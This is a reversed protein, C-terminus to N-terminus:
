ADAPSPDASATEYAVSAFSVCCTRTPNVAQDYRLLRGNVPGIAHLMTYTAALGCVRWRNEVRAATDFWGAPDQRAAHELMAEDFTRIQDLTADDVPSPDGFEPGVHCLDIGGIYAVKKGSAAEASRLAEVMRAVEPDDIPEIGRTMLDHFSGVLIPVISIDRRKALLHQLFVVQFEVSHETRHALEDEFLHHGASDALHGVFNRDTKALGLPTQFDKRTLAFRNKCYQHAVGLVVFVEADSREVLERYAWTYVPGGRGFDIHPCLIGRLTAPRTPVPKSPPGSGNPHAFYRDLEATLAAKSSSYSRGAMAAARVDLRAHSERFSAFTPGDLVMARDLQRVLSELDAMSVVQGTERRVRIQVEDLTTRGDFYRVVYQFADLPLLFSGSFLGLSDELAVYSEGRHEVRRGSLPRLLPRDLSEM